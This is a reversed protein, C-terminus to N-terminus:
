GAAAHWCRSLLLWAPWSGVTVLLLSADRALPQRVTSVLLLYYNCIHPIVVDGHHVCATIIWSLQNNRTTKNSNHTPTILINIMDTDTMPRMSAHRRYLGDGLM